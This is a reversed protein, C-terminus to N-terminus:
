KISTIETKGQKSETKVVGFGPAFWEAGEVNMPIGIGMTKIRTKSKYAIKYCDWSGAPTTIKEKGEVKRDTVEMNISQKLGSGNDIDINMTANKLQDGVNMSAPYEIFINDAKVNAETMQETQQLPLSLKMDIMMVGGVCMIKSAGKAVSNGKKDFMETALDATISGTSNSVNTVSYVQKAAQDGKKNYITMEITKNNQMFYYGSCDQSQAGPICVFFILILFLLKM